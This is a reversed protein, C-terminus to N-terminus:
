PSGLAVCCADECCGKPEIGVVDEPLALRVPELGDLTVRLHHVGTEPDTEFVFRAKNAPATSVLKVECAPEDVAAATTDTSDSDDGESTDVVDAGFLRCVRDVCFAGTGCDRHTECAFAHGDIAVPDACAAVPALALALAALLSRKSM